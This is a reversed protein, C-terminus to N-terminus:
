RCVLFQRIKGLENIRFAPVDFLLRLDKRATSTPIVTSHPISSSTDDDM